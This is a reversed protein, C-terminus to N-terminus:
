LIFRVLPSSFFPVLLISFDHQVFSFVISLVVSTWFGFCFDCDLMKVVLLLKYKAFILQAKERLGTKSSVLVIFAALLSITAIQYITPM